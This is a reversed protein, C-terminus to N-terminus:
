RAAIQALLEVFSKARSFDTEWYNVGLRLSQYYQDRHTFYFEESPLYLMKQGLKEVLFWKECLRAIRGNGDAFPHILVMILHIWSAWFFCEAITHKKKLLEGIAEFFVHMESAVKHPEIALYEIGRNSFVGVPEQRYQGQRAKNVFDKSLIAHAKLMNQENLRNKRIFKYAVVLDEIEQAEKPRVKKPQMRSNLFSNLNLSNGEIKSSYLAASDLMYDFTLEKKELVDLDFQQRKLYGPLLKHTFFGLSEKIRSEKTGAECGYTVNPTQGYKM